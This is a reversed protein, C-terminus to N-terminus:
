LAVVLVACFPLYAMGVSLPSYGLVTSMYLSLLLFMAAMTGTMLTMALAAISRVPSAFFRPPLLPDPARREVLVFTTLAALGGLQPGLVRPDNWPRSSAALLGAVVAVLGGTALVAGALDLRGGPAHSEDVLRPLLALAMVAVPLNVLFVWRWSVMDTLLGALLLGAVGGLAGLGGWVGLARARNKGAPFLVAVLSLAAPAALAVGLGQAFRSAVLMVTDQAAGAALSAAAFLATGWGLVRRRGLLDGLRGGLLLVGGAALLYANVAWALGAGTLHLDVQVSPLAVNVTTLNAVIMFQVSALVALAWWRRAQTAASGAHPATLATTM